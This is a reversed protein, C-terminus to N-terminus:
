GFFGRIIDSFSLMGLSIAVTMVLIGYFLSAIYFSLFAKVYLMAKKVMGRQNDDFFQGVVWVLYIASMYQSMGIIGVGMIRFDSFYSVVTGISLFLMSVGCVFCLLVFIEFFNYDSKRFFLKAVLAVFMGLLLTTYAPTNAIWRLVVFNDGESLSSTFFPNLFILADPHYARIEGFVRSPFFFDVLVFALSTIIVFVIPKIYPRRTTTLYHRVSKGPRILMSKITYLLGKKALFADAMECVIYQGDIRKLDEPQEYHPENGKSDNDM